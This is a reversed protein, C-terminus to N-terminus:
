CRAATQAWYGAQDARDGEALYLEEGCSARNWFDHVRQKDQNMRDGMRPKAGGVGSGCLDPM